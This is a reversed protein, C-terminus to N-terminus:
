RVFDTVFFTMKTKSCKKFSNKRSEWNKRLTWPLVKITNKVLFFDSWYKESIKAKLTSPDPGFTADTIQTRFYYSFMGRTQLGCMSTKWIGSLCLGVIQLPQLAWFTSFVEYISLDYIKADFSRGIKKEVGFFFILKKRMLFNEFIKRRFFNVFFKGSFDPFKESKSFINSKKPTSFNKQIYNRHLVKRDKSKHPKWCTRLVRDRRRSATLLITWHDIM